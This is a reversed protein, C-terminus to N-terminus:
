RYRLTTHIIIVDENDAILKNDAGQAHNSLNVENKSVSPNIAEKASEDRNTRFSSVDQVYRNNYTSSIIM